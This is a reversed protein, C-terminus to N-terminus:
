HSCSICRIGPAKFLAALLAREARKLKKKAANRINPIDLSERLVMGCFGASQASLGKARLEAVYEDILPMM